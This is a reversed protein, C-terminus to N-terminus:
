CVTNFVHCVIYTYGLMSSSERLWKQGPFATPIAYESHTDAARNICCAIRMRGIINDDTAQRARCYKKM